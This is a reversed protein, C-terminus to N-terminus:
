YRITLWHIWDQFLKANLYAQYQGQIGKDTLDVSPKKELVSM